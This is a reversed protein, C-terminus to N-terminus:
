EASSDLPDFLRRGGDVALIQGTIFSAAPSALFLVADAAESTEGLRGLPIVEELAEPLDEIGKLAESLSHGLMGGVAVANVRIKRGALAAALARTLQDLAAASVSYALLEPRSREADSSTLNVIAGAEGGEEAHAIMRKAAIQCLRFTATVNQALVDEFRDQEHSLPDASVLLRSANVLVELREFADFTAAMLNQMTLRERLDGSFIQARGEFGESAIAACEAELKAEDRDAMMVSAGAQAFRRAIALGVGNAAGTVVVSRGDMGWAM